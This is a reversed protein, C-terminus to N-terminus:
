QACQNGNFLSQFYSRRISGLPRLKFKFNPYMCFAFSQAFDERENNTAYQDPPRESKPPCIEAFGDCYSNFYKTQLNMAYSLYFPPTQRTDWVHALEHVMQGKAWSDDVRYVNNPLIVNNISYAGSGLFTERNIRYVNVISDGMASKFRDVGGLKAAMDTVAQKVLRLERITRWNGEEWECGSYLIGTVIGPPLSSPHVPVLRYGWDKKAQINYKRLKEVLEDAEDAKKEPIMGSPDILNVPNGEVYNWRNLSLPRNYDGQWSDKTLFRGTEPAYYRSRLYILKIYSDRIEGTYQYASYGSGVSTVTEGYPSYSQTLTVSGTTDALQRVSELADGLFYETTSDVQAIRGNGYLYTNTGDDLVQTLGAALDLTYNTTM